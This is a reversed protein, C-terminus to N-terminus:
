TPVTEIPPTSATKLGSENKRDCSVQMGDNKKGVKGPESCTLPVPVPVAGPPTVPRPVQIPTMPSVGAEPCNVSVKVWDVTCIM